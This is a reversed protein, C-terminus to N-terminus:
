YQLNLQLGPQGLISGLATTTMALSHLLQENTAAVLPAFLDGMFTPRLVEAQQQEQGPFVTAVATPIKIVLEAETLFEALRRQFM